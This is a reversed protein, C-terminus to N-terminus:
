RGKKSPSRSRKALREKRKEEAQKEQTALLKSKPAPRASEAEQAAEQKKAKMMNFGQGLGSPVLVEADQVAKTDAESDPKKGGEIMAKYEPLEEGLQSKILSTQAQTLVNNTLWYIGLGQPSVLSTYGILLPVLAQVFGAPGTTGGPPASAQATVYQSVILLLPLILYLGANEWGVLPEFHDSYPSKILWDLNNEGAVPGALSPIWLFGDKFHDSVDALKIIARYLSIFIPLQVLTPLCGGIPSVGIDDYLRMMMRQQTEQDNKYKAQIQKVKPQVLQMLANTRLATQNLPFLVLKTLATYFIIAFGFTNTLGLKEEIVSDLGDIVGINFDVIPSFWDRDTGTPGADLINPAAVSDITSALRTVSEEAWTPSSMAFLGLVMAATGAVVWPNVGEQRREDPAEFESGPEGSSRTAAVATSGRRPNAQASVLVALAVAATIAANGAAQSGRRPAPAPLSPSGAGPAAAAHPLTSSGAVEAAPVGSLPVRQSIFGTGPQSVLVVVALLVAGAVFVRLASSSQPRGVRPLTM